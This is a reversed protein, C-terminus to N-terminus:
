VLTEPGMMSMIYCPVGLITHTIKLGRFYELSSVGWRRRLRDREWGELFSLAEAMRNIICTRCENGIYYPIHWLDWLKPHKLYHLCSKYWWCVLPKKVSVSPLVLRPRWPTKQRRCLTWPKPHSPRSHTLSCWPTVPGAWWSHWATRWNVVLSYM